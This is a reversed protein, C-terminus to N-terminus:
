RGHTKKISNTLLNYIDKHHENELQKLHKKITKKDNRKAPGTQAMYPSLNQVKKATELILPKLIDFEVGESETIEHAVRYLQNTFNNVFVAALHLTKRQDPNIKYVKNSIAEALSKLLPYNKKGITEICIPINKFDVKADKSFTQLPYFVGRKNKKDLDYISVSGSTHVVLRNEFPLAKSVTAIADDSVAIIYIDAEKLELLNDTISVKNKFSSIKSIDRSYWQKVSVAETKDFVKLLHNAVNGAGIISVSIM